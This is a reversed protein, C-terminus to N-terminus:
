LLLNNKDVLRPDSHEIIDSIGIILSYYITVFDKTYNDLQENLKLQFDIFHSTISINNDRLMGLEKSCVVM